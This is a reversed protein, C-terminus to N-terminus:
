KASWEKETSTLWHSMFVFHILSVSTRVVLVAVFFWITMGHAGFIYNGWINLVVKM